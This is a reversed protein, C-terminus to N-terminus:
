SKESAFASSGLWFTTTIRTRAHAAILSESWRCYWGGRQHLLPAKLLILFIVNDYLVLVPLLSEEYVQVDVSEVFLWEVNSM